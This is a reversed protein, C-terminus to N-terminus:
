GALISTAQALRAPLDVADGMERYNDAQVTFTKMFDDILGDALLAAAFKLNQEM